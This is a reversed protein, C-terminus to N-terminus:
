NVLCIFEQENIKQTLSVGKEEKFKQNLSYTLGSLTVSEHSYFALKLVSLIAARVQLRRKRAQNQETKTLKVVPLSVPLTSM